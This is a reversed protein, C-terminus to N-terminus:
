ADEPLVAADALLSTATLAADRRLIKPVGGERPGFLIQVVNTAWNGDVAKGPLLVFRVAKDGAAVPVDVEGDLSSFAIGDSGVRFPIEVCRIATSPVDSHKDVEAIEVWLSGDHDPVLFSAVGDRMAFGQAVHAETWFPFAPKGGKAFVAVQGYAASTEFATLM